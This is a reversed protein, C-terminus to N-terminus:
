VRAVLAHRLFTVHTDPGLFLKTDLDREEHGDIVVAYRGDEFARLAKAIAEVTNCGRHVVRDLDVGADAPHDAVDMKTLVYLLHRGDGQENCADWDAAVIRSILARLTPPGCRSDIWSPM